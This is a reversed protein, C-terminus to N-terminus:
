AQGAAIEAEDTDDKLFTFMNAGCVPCTGRAARRGSETTEEHAEQIPRKTKCRVCYGTVEEAILEGEPPLEASAEATARENESATTMAVGVGAAAAPAEEAEPESFVDGEDVEDAALEAPGVVTEVEPESSVDDEVEGNVQEAASVVEEPEPAAAGEAAGPVRAAREVPAPPAASPLPPFAATHDLPRPPAFHPAGGSHENQRQQYWMWILWGGVAAVALWFVRKLM